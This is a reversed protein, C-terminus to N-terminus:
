GYRLPPSCTSLEVSRASMKEWPLLVSPDVGGFLEKVSDECNGSLEEAVASDWGRQKRKGSLFEKTGFPDIKWPKYGISEEGRLTDDLEARSM